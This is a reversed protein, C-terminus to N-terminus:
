LKYYNGDGQIGTWLSDTKYAKKCYINVTDINSLKRLYGAIFYQTNDIGKCFSSYTPNNYLLLVLGTDAFTKMPSTMYGNSYVLITDKSITNMTSDTSSYKVYTNYTIQQQIPYITTKDEDKNCSSIIFLGIILTIITKM